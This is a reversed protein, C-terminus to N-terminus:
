LDDKNYRKFGDGLVQHAEQIIIFATPDVRSALEKLESVQQRKLAVLIVNTNNGSYYGQGKLYTVGRHLETDIANAMKEYHPTIIMAVKSYDFSYIVADIVKSAVFLVVISYLTKSFDKFVIGTLVAIFLDLALTISGISFNPYTRKVLRVIIDTGGTSVTSKYVFGMGIGVTVGGYLAGLLTDTQPLRIFATADFLVSLVVVGVLSGFFFKKGIKKGGILFLPVNMIATYLGVTGFGTWEVLIQSLGALGGGNIENPQLFANFSVGLIVCGVLLTPLWKWENWFNKM